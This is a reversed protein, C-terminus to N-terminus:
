LDSNEKKNYNDIVLQISEKEADTLKRYGDLLLAEDQNLDYHNVNEIIHDIDTHGVLYDVSTHFFNAFSILTDIDPEISHNEYKNVSQQSVGIIDALRQQSLGKRLRLKKLNKVM